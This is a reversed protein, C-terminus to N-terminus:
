HRLDDPIKLPGVSKPQHGQGRRYRKLQFVYALVQAVATYLGQPIKQNLETTYYISRALAPSEMRVVGNSYAITKIKEAVLDLGKAVVVPAAVGNPDYSLAVAYHTPNTIVVDAKSIESLMRKQTMKMATDRIKSKIEPNGETTKQEEKIETRTMKLEKNHQWIQFPVDILVILFLASSFLIFSTIYMKMGKMLGIKFPLESLMFFESAMGILIFTIVSGIVLLKGCAKVLEVLSKLGFMKKLGKLLNFVQFNPALRSPSLVWGGLFIPSIVAIFFIFSLFPFISFVATQLTYILYKILSNTDFIKGTNFTFNTKMIDVSCQIVGCGFILFFFGSSLLLVLTTLDRSRPIQGKKKAEEKRKVTAEETREQSSDEQDSM